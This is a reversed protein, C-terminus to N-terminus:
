VSSMRALVSFAEGLCDIVKNELGANGYEPELVEPVHMLFEEEDGGGLASTPKRQIFPANAINSVHRSNGEGLVDGWSRLSVGGLACATTRWRLGLPRQCQLPAGGVQSPPFGASRSNLVGTASVGSSMSVKALRDVLADVFEKTCAQLFM